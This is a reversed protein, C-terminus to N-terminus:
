SAAESLREEQLRVCHVVVREDIDVRVACNVKPHLNPRKVGPFPPPVFDVHEVSHSPPDYIADEFM